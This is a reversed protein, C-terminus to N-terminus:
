LVNLVMSANLRYNKGTLTFFFSLKILTSSATVSKKM